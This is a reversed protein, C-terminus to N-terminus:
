AAPASSVSSILPMVNLLFGDLSKVKEGEGCDVVYLIASLLHQFYMQSAPDNGTMHHIHGLNCAIAMSHLVSVDMDQGVLFQRAHEYLTLAKRILSQRSTENQEEMARLHHALALNYVIVCLLKECYEETGCDFVTSSLHIPDRFMSRPSLRGNEVSTLFSCSGCALFEFCFDRPSDREGDTDNGTAMAATDATDTIMIDGSMVLQIRKLAMTLSSIAEDFRDDGIDAVAQNNLNSPNMMAINITQDFLPSARPPIFPFFPLFPSSIFFRFILLFVILM